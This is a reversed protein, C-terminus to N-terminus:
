GFRLSILVGIWCGLLLVPGFALREVAHSRAVFVAIIGTAAICLPVWMLATLPSVWGAVCGILPAIKVDGAGLAGSGGWWFILFVVFYTFAAATAALLQAWEGTFLSANLLLTVTLLAAWAVLRNPLRHERLDVVSLAVSCVGFAAYAGVVSLTAPNFPM